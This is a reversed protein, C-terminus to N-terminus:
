IKKQFTLIRAYQRRLFIDEPYERLLKLVKQEAFSVKGHNILENIMQTKCSLYGKESYGSIAKSNM